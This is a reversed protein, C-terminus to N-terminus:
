FDEGYRQAVSQAARFGIMPNSRNKHQFNRVGVGLFFETSTWSGGRHVKRPEQHNLYSPSVFNATGVSELVVYSPNYSDLVWESVNGAMNYLGFDNPMFADVPAMIAYGDKDYVGREQMFNARYEGTNTQVELGDWPFIRGSVGSRAAYEWESETPLRKGAWAAFLKAQYWNVTVVPYDDYFPDYFYTDWPVVDDLGYERWQTSDPLLDEPGDLNPPDVHELYDELEAEELLVDWEMPTGYDMGGEAAQVEAAAPAPMAEMAILFTRYQENTVAYKDIKFPNITIRKRNQVQINLEDVSNLGMIYSGGPVEVMETMLDSDGLQVVHEVAQAAMENFRVGPTDYLLIKDSMMSQLERLDEDTRILNAINEIREMRVVDETEIEERERRDEAVQREERDLPYSMGVSFKSMSNPESGFDAAEGYNDFYNNLFVQHSYQLFARYSGIFNRSIRLGATASPIFLPLEDQANARVLDNPFERLAYPANGIGELGPTDTIERRTVITNRNDYFADTKPNHYQLGVDVMPEFAWDDGVLYEFSFGLTPGIANNQINVPIWPTNLHRWPEDYSITPSRHRLYNLGAHLRINYNPATNIPRSAGLNIHFGEIPYPLGVIEDFVAEGLRDFNGHFNNVGTQLHIDVDAWFGQAQTQQPIVWTTIFVTILLATKSFLLRDTKRVM